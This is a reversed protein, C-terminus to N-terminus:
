LDTLVRVASPELSLVLELVTTWQGVACAASALHRARRTDGRAVLAKAVETLARAQRDPDTISRAVIEAQEHQGAEALAGALEALAQAQRGPNTISRAVTAAQSAMV